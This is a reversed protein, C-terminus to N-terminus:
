LEACLEAFSPRAELSEATCAAAAHRLAATHGHRDYACAAGLDSLKVVQLCFLSTFARDSWSQVGLCAASCRGVDVPWTEALHRSSIWPGTCSPRARPAGREIAAGSGGGLWASGHQGRDALRDAPDRSGRPATHPPRRRRSAFRTTCTSIATRSDARTCGRGLALSPVRLKERRCPVAAPGDHVCMARTTDRVSRRASSPGLVGRAQAPTLRAHKGEVFADRTVSAFSPPGGVASAGPSMCTM